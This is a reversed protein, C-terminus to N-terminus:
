RPIVPPAHPPPLPPAVYSSYLQADAGALLYRLRKGSIQERAIIFLVLWVLLPALPCFCAFPMPLLILYAITKFFAANPTKERLGLWIGVVSIVYVSVGITIVMVSGAIASGFDGRFILLCAAVILLLPIRFQRWLAAVQGKVLCDPPLPTALLMEMAGSRRAEALPYSAQSALRICLLITALWIPVPVSAPLITSAVVAWGVLTVAIINVVWRAVPSMAYRMALWEGPNRDLIRAREADPVRSRLIEKPASQVVAKHQEWRRPLFWAAGLLAAMSIVNTIAFSIWFNDPAVRYGPDPITYFATFPTFYRLPHLPGISFLKPFFVAILLLIMTTNATEKDGRGFASVFLGITVSYLLVSSLSLAARLIEGGTVGGLLVSIALVPLFALVPQILPVMIGFLKGGIIDIPKLDTLFLLGLTGERKEDAISGSALRVGQLLCFFFSFWRLANFIGAGPWTAAVMLAGFFFGALTSILRVRFTWPRRSAVRMERHLISFM